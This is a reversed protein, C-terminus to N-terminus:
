QTTEKGHSVRVLAIRTGPGRSEIAVFKEDGGRKVEFVTKGERDKENFKTVSSGLREKYFDRVKELPDPTEFTAIVMGVNAEGPIEINITASEKDELRKAGPYIPLGLRAENVDQNLEFTGVPTKISVEKKGREGEDVRVQVNRALFRLGTWVVLGSVVIILTLTLLAIAVIHSGTQPPPPPAPPRPPHPTTAM